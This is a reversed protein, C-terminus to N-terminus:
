KLHSAAIRNVKSTQKCGSANRARLKVIMRGIRGLNRKGRVLEKLELYYALEISNLKNIAVVRSIIGSSREHGLKEKAVQMSDFLERAVGTREGNIDLYDCEMGFREEVLNKYQKPMDNPAWSDALPDKSDASYLYLPFLLLALQLISQPINNRKGIFSM